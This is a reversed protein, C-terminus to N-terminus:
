KALCSTLAATKRWGCAGDAGRECVASKYCAYEPRYECTTMVDHDACVQGSCGTKVCATADAVCQANQTGGQDECHTGAACRVAACTTVAVCQAPATGGQDDCRTGAACRVNACTVDPLCQAHQTGGNDYCHYGSSCRAMTCNAVAEKTFRVTTGQRSLTLATASHTAAFIKRGYRTSSLRVRLQGGSRYASWTGSDQLVCPAQICRIRPDAVAGTYKGTTGLALSAYYMDSDPGTATGNTWSGAVARGLASLAEESSAVDEADMADGEATDVACGTVAFGAVAAFIFSSGLLSRLISTM